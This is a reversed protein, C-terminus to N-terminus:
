AGSCPGPRRVRSLGLLAFLHGTPDNWEPLLVILSPDLGRDKFTDISKLIKEENLDIVAISADNMGELGLLNNQM